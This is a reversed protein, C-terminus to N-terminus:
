RFRRVGFLGVSALLVLVTVFAVFGPAARSTARAEETDPTAPQPTADIHPAATAPPLARATDSQKPETPRPSVYAIAYTEPTDLEFTSMKASMAPAVFVRGYGMAYMVGDTLNFWGYGWGTARKVQSFELDYISLAGNDGDNGDSVFTSDDLWAFPPAYYEDWSSVRLDGSEIDLICLRAPEYTACGIKTESPNLAISWTGTALRGRVVKEGTTLNIETLTNSEKGTVLYAVNHNKAVVVDSGETDFRGREEGEVIRVIKRGGEYWVVLSDGAGDLCSIGDPFSGAKVTFERTIELDDIRRTAIVARGDETSAVEAVVASGPCVDVLVTEGDGRGNALTRGKSDITITRVDGDDVGVVFMPPGVGDPAPRPAAAARLSEPDVRDFYLDAVWQGDEGKRIFYGVQQDPRFEPESWGGPYSMRVAVETGLEGKFVEDVHFRYDGYRRDVRDTSPEVAEDDATPESEAQPIPEATDAPEVNGDKPTPDLTKPESTQEASPQPTHEGSEIPSTQEPAKTPPQPEVGDPQSTPEVAPEPSPEASEAPSTQESADAPPTPEVSEPPSTPEVAPQASPEATEVPRKTQASEARPRADTAEAQSIPETVGSQSPAEPREVQPTPELADEATPESLGDTPTPEDAEVEVTSRSLFRGIFAADAQGLPRSLRDRLNEPPGSWCAIAVLSLASIGAVLVGVVSVRLGNARRRGRNRPKSRAEVRGDAQVDGSAAVCSNRRAVIRVM